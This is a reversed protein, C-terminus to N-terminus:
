LRLPRGGHRGVAGPLARGWKMPALRHLDPARGRVSARAWSWSPAKMARLPAKTVWIPVGHGAPQRDGPPVGVAGEQCRM